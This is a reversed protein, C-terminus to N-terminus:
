NFNKIATEVSDIIFRTTSKGRKEAEARWREKTGKPARVRIDDTKEELYKTSARKQAENYKSGM